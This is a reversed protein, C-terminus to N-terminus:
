QIFHEANLLFQRLNQINKFKQSITSAMNEAQEKEIEDGLLTKIKNSLSTTIKLRNQEQQQEFNQM